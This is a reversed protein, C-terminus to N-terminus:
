KSERGVETCLQYKTILHKIFSSNWIFVKIGWDHLHTVFLCFCLLRLKWLVLEWENNSYIGPNLRGGSTGEKRKEKWASWVWPTTSHYVTVLYCIAHLHTPSLCLSFAGTHDSHVGSHQWPRQGSSIIYLSTLGHDPGRRVQLCEPAWHKGPLLLSSTVGPGTREQPRLWHPGLAGTNDRTESLAGERQSGNTRMEQDSRTVQRFKPSGRYPLLHKAPATGAWWHRKFRINKIRKHAPKYFALCFAATIFYLNENENIRLGLHGKVDSSTWTSQALLLLMLQGGRWRGGAEGLTTPGM